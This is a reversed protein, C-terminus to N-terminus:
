TVRVRKGSRHFFYGVAKPGCVSRTREITYRFSACARNDYGDRNIWVRSGPHAAGGSQERGSACGAQVVGIGGKERDASRV